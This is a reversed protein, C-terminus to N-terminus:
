AETVAMPVASYVHKGARLARVVLPGHTWRQTFIAVAEVDSALLAEFDAVAGDLGASQRLEEARGPEIDSVLMKGVGPHLRFLKAFTGAFQGAGLIGISVAM